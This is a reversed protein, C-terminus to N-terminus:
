HLSLNWSGIVGSRIIGTRKKTTQNHFNKDDHVLANDKIKCQNKKMLQRAIVTHLFSTERWNERKKNTSIEKIRIKEEPEESLM